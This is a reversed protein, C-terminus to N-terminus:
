GDMMYLGVRGRILEGVRGRTWSDTWGDTRGDECLMGASYRL